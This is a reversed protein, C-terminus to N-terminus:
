NFSRGEPTKEYLLFSRTSYTSSLILGVWLLCAKLHLGEVTGFLMQFFPILITAAQKVAHDSETFLTTYGINHKTCFTFLHRNNESLTPGRIIDMEQVGKFSVFNM